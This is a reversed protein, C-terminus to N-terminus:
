TGTELIKRARAITEDSATWFDNGTFAEGWVELCNSTPVTERNKADTNTTLFDSGYTCVGGDANKSFHKCEGCTYKLGGGINAESVINKEGLGFLLLNIIQELSPVKEGQIVLGKKILAEQVQLARLERRLLQRQQTLRVTRKSVVRNRNAVLSVFAGRFGGFNETPLSQIAASTQATFLELISLDRNLIGNKQLFELGEQTTQNGLIKLLQQIERSVQEFSSASESQITGDSQQTNIFTIPKGQGNEGILREIRRIEPINVARNWLNIVTKLDKLLARVTQKSIEFETALQKFFSDVINKGIVGQGPIFVTNLANQYNTESNDNENRILGLVRLLTTNFDETSVNNKRADEDTLRSEEVSAIITRALRVLEKGLATSAM